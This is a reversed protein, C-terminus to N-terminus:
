NTNLALDYYLQAFLDSLLNVPDVTNVKLTECELAKTMCHSVTLKFVFYGCSSLFMFYSVFYDCSNVRFERKQSKLTRM